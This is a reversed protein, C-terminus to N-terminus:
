CSGKAGFTLKGTEFAEGGYVEDFYGKRLVRTADTIFVLGANQGYGQAEITAVLIGNLISYTGYTYKQSGIVASALGSATLTLCGSYDGHQTESIQIAYSGSYNRAAADIRLDHATAPRLCAVAVLVLGAISAFTRKFHMM